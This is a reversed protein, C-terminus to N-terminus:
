VRNPPARARGGVPARRAHRWVFWAGSVVASTTCPALSVPRGPHVLPWSTLVFRSELTSLLHDATPTNSLSCAGHAHLYVSGVGTDRELISHRPVRDAQRVHVELGVGPADCRGLHRRRGLFNLRHGFASGAHIDTGPYFSGCSGGHPLASEGLLLDDRDQLLGLGSGLGLVQTEPVADALLGQAAPLRLVAAHIDAFRRRWSSSSFRRRFCITASRLRSL